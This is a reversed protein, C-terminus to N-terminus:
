EIWAVSTCDKFGHPVIHDYGHEPASFMLFDRGLYVLWRGNNSWGRNPLIINDVLNYRLVEQSETNYLFIEFFTRPPGASTGIARLLLWHHDPSFSHFSLGGYSKEATLALNTEGTRWDLTFVYDINELRNAVILYILDPAFSDTFAENLLLDDAEIEPLLSALDAVELLQEPNNDKISAMMLISNDRDNVFAYTENDLWFPESGVGVMEGGQVQADGGFILNSGEITDPLDPRSWLTLSGDPSWTPTEEIPILSCNEEFCNDVELLYANSEFANQDNDDQQFLNVVMYRGTPDFLDASFLFGDGFYVATEQGGLWLTTRFQDVDLFQETLVLGQNDLLGSMVVIDRGGLEVQWKGEAPDYRYITSVGSQGNNCILAIDEEPWEIPPQGQNQAIRDFSFDRWNQEVVNLSGTIGADTLWTNFSDSRTLFRELDVVTYDEQRSLIFEMFSHIMWYDPREQAEELIVGEEWFSRIIALEVPQRLAAQYDKPRLPWSRLNLQQLQVDLLATFFLSQDCCEWGTQRAVLRSVLITAYARYLARYSANNAPKGILTPAPLVLQEAEQAFHNPDNLEMMADLDTELLVDLPPANDCELDLNACAGALVAEIDSALRSGLEEDREPYTLIVFRGKSSIWNGWFDNNPPSLLWRTESLRYVATQVLQIEGEEGNSGYGYTETYEIEASQLDPSLDIAIEAATEQPKWTLGFPRRDLLLNADLLTLQTQTWKPDRGSLLPALLELDNEEAALKVLAHSSLVDEEVSAATNDVYRRLQSYAFIGAAIVLVLVGLIIPLTPRKGDPSGNGDDQDPAAYEDWTHDDEARWDFNSSM